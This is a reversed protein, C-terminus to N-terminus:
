LFSKRTYLALLDCNSGGGNGFAVISLLIGIQPKTHELGLM